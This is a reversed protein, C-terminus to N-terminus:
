FDFSQCSCIDVYKIRINRGFCKSKVPDENKKAIRESVGKGIDSQILRVLYAQEYQDTVSTLHGGYSEKKCENIADYWSMPTSNFTYCSTTNDANVHTRSNPPCIPVDLHNIM